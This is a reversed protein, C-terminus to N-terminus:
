NKPSNQMREKTPNEKEEFKEKVLFHFNRKQVQEIQCLAKQGKGNTLWFSEGQKMRLVQLAHHMTEDSLAISSFDQYPEYFYPISM